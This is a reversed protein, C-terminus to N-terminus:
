FWRHSNAYISVFQLQSLSLQYLFDFLLTLFSISYTCHPRFPPIPSANYQDSHFSASANVLNVMLLDISDKTRDSYLGFLSHEGGSNGSQILQVGTSIRQLVLYSQLQCYFSTVNVSAFTHTAYKKISIFSFAGFLSCKSLSNIYYVTLLSFIASACWCWLSIFADFADWYWLLRSCTLLFQLISPLSCCCLAM